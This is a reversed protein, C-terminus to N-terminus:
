FMKWYLILIILAWCVPVKWINFLLHSHYSKFVIESVFNSVVEISPIPGQPPMPFMPPHYLHGTVLIHKATTIAQFSITAVCTIISFSSSTSSTRWSRTGTPCALGWLSRFRADRVGERVDGSWSLQPVGCCLQHELSLFHM